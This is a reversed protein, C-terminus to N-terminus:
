WDRTFFRTKDVVPKGDALDFPAYGFPILVTKLKRNM